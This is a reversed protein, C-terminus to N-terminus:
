IGVVGLAKARDTESSPDLEVDPETRWYLDPAIAAYGANALEDVIGRINANVGFIEQLVVVAVHGGNGPTAFYASFGADGNEIRITGNQKTM